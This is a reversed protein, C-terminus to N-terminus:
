SGGWWSGEANGRQFDVPVMRRDEAIRLGGNCRVEWTGYQLGADDGIRTMRTNIEKYGVCIGERVVELM